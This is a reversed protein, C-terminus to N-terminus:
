FHDESSTPAVETLIVSTGALRGTGGAQCSPGLLVRPQVLLRSRAGFWRRGIVEHQSPLPAKTRRSSSSRPSTSPRRRKKVPERGM